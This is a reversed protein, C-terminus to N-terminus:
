SIDKEILASNDSSSGMRHQIRLGREVSGQEVRRSLVHARGEFSHAFVLLLIRIRRFM